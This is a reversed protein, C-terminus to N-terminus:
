PRAQSPVFKSVLQAEQNQEEEVGDQSQDHHEQADPDRICVNTPASLMKRLGSTDTGGGSTDPDGVPM